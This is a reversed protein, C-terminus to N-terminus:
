NELTDGTILQSQHFLRLLLVQQGEVRYVIIYSEVLYERYDAHLLNPNSSLAGINPFTSLTEAANRVGRALKLASAPSHLDNKSIASQAKSMGASARPMPSTM